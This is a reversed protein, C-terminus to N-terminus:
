IASSRIRRSDIRQIERLVADAIGSSDSSNANVTISYNYVSEGASTGNNMSALSDAGIRDVAPKSMVFEGPTLMAPITDTGLAYKSAEVSLGNNAYVMGGKAYGAFLKRAPLGYGKKSLAGWITNADKDKKNLKEQATGMTKGLKEINTKEAETWKSKADVGGAAKVAANYTKKATDFDSQLAVRSSDQRLEKLKLFAEKIPLPLKEIESAAKDAVFQEKTYTSLGAIANTAELYKAKSANFGERQTADLQSYKAEMQELTMSTSNFGAKTFAARMGKTASIKSAELQTKYNEFGKDSTMTAFNANASGAFNGLSGASGLGSVIQSSSKSKTTPTVPTVGPGGPGGPGGTGPNYPKLLSLAKGDRLMDATHKASKLANQEINAVRQAELLKFGAIKEANGQLTAELKTRDTLVGNIKIEIGELETKRANEVSTKADDLAAKQDNQKAQLAARAAAAIDGKSLADALTMTDQQRQNNKEQIKGIEDLAKVRADYKENIKKEKNGIVELGAQYLENDKALREAPSMLVYKLGIESAERIQKLKKLLDVANKKLQGTKRDVIMNQEKETGNMFAQIEEAAAGSRQMLVAFGGMQKISASTYKMIAKYSAEWGVTLKQQYNNAERLMKVYPDLISPDPGKVEKKEQASGPGTTNDIGANDVTRDAQYAAYDAYTLTQNGQENRWVKFSAIMDKDGEMSMIQQLETLFVIKNAKNYKNFKSFESKIAKEAGAGIIKTAIPVTIEKQDKLTDINKKFQIMKDENKISFNIIADAAKGQFVGKTKQALELADNLEVLKAPDLDAIDQLFATQNETGKINGALGLARNAEVPSNTLLSTLDEMGGSTKGLTSMAINSQSIGLQKTALAQKMFVEQTLNGGSADIAERAMKAQGEMGTGEYAKEISTNVTDSIAQKASFLTFVGESQKDIMALMEENNAKNSQMLTAQERLYVNQLRIAEATDGAAQAEAIRKEYSMQLSDVMQQQVELANNISESMAGAAKVIQEQYQIGAIVLGTLAGAITGIVPVASGMATLGTVIAATSGLSSALAAGGLAAFGAAAGIGAGAAANGGAQAGATIAGEGTVKQMAASNQRVQDMSSEIIQMRVKLPENKLNEGNPGMIDTLKSTVNMGFSMNGMETGLNAAISRAQAPTMVGSAIADSLQNTILKEANALGGGKTVETDVSKVLEKGADTKMYSEGFTTKGQVINFFQGGSTERRKDMAETATAKKSFEAFKGIAKNSTGLQKELDAAETRIKNFNENVQLAGIALAALGGVVLGAPGPIMSMAATAAGVPGMISQATQGVQGPVQTLMGVGASLGYAAGVAAGSKENREFLKGFKGKKTKDKGTAQYDAEMQAEMARMARTRAGEQGQQSKTPNSTNKTEQYLDSERKLQAYEENNAELHLRTRHLREIRLKEEADAKKADSTLMETLAKDGAKILANKGVELGKAVAGLGNRAVSDAVSKARQLFGGSNAPPVYPAPEPVGPIGKNYGPVGPTGKNYGPLKGAIMQTILGRNQEAKDAPIVAEGPTLMAPVVDGAGKPGPVSFVGNAYKKTKMGSQLQKFVEAKTAQSATPAVLKFFAEWDGSGAALRTATGSVGNPDRPIGIKKLEIGYKAAALDFVQANMRDQGLLLTLKKIGEASLTEMLTFPNQTLDPTVGISERILKSKLKDSLISRKAKGQMTSFQRFPVGQKNAIDMGMRAISEHASTFPQHAGFAAIASQSVNSTGNALKLYNANLTNKGRLIALAGPNLGLTGEFGKKKADYGLFEKTSFQGPKGANDRWKLQKTKGKEDMVFPLPSTPNLMWQKTAAVAKRRLAIGEPTSSDGISDSNIRAFRGGFPTDATPFAEPGNPKIVLEGRLLMGTILKDWAEKQLQDRKPRITGVQKTREWILNAAGGISTNNATQDNITSEVIQAFVTDDIVSRSAFKTGILDELAQAKSLDKVGAMQATKSLKGNFANYIQSFFKGPVGKRKTHPDPDKIAQNLKMPLSMTLNSLIKFKKFEDLTLNPNDELFPRMAQAAVKPDNIDMEGFAHTEHIDILSRIEDTTYESEDKLGPKVKSTGKNYRRVIGGRSGYVNVNNSDGLAKAKFSPVVGWRDSSAGLGLKRLMRYDSSTTFALANSDTVFMVRGRGQDQIIRQAVPSDETLPGAVKPDYLFVQPMSKKNKAKIAAARAKGEPSNAREEALRKQEAEYALKAPSKYTSAPAMYFQGSQSRGAGTTGNAYQPLNGSVMGAIVPAYKSAYKAPIVAEGPSLLAPVIDGAGKPGPVMSVGNAYKKPKPGANGVPVGPVGSYAGQAQVARKYAETLANVAAVEATFTQRLKSHSQDLSAAIAASRLQESNMYSTQEGLIDSPRTTKNIFSKMNTFLKMINAVGNAILGFTMLLIPGIGAVVTVLITIFQKSGESLNNFGDLIKSVFEVIPTVAKLFAEGVPALKAQIDEISKQFKFMPSDSVKKMERDSLVALEEATENALGAVKNAQSGEEIVNKFLTSIRSFQFKGFLQEIARARNLPDLTDFAKAMGIVTGKVDGKNSEVIGKVNINFGALFESAKKSPNIMSALGSKLANAGESANIGGEKM